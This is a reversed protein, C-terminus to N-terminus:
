YSASLVRVARSCTGSGSYRPYPKEIELLREKIIADAMKYRDEMAIDFPLEKLFIDEYLLDYPQSNGIVMYGLM